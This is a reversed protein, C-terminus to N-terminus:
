AYGSMAAPADHASADVLPTSVELAIIDARPTMVESIRLTQFAEAQDVIDVAESPPEVAPDSSPPQLWRSFLGGVGPRRTRRSRDGPRAEPSRGETDPM